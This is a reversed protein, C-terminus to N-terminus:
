GPLETGLPAVNISWNQFLSCFLTLVKRFSSLHGVYITYPCEQALTPPNYMHSQVGLLRGTNTNISHQILIGPFMCGWSVAESGVLMSPYRYREEEKRIIKMSMHISTPVPCYFEPSELPMSIDRLSHSLPIM